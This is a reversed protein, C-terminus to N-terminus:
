SNGGSKAFADTATLWRELKARGSVDHTRVTDVLVRAARRAADVQSTFYAPFKEQMDKAAIASVMADKYIDWARKVNPDRYPFAELPPILDSLQTMGDGDGEPPQM